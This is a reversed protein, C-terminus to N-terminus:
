FMDFPTQGVTVEANVIAEGNKGLVYLRYQEAQKRLYMDFMNVNDENLNVDASYWSIVEEEKGNYKKIKAM